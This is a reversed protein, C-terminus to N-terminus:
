LGQCLLKEQGQIEMFVINELTSIPKLGKEERLKQVRTFDVLELVNTKIKDLGILTNLEELLDDLSPVKNDKSNNAKDYVTLSLIIITSLHTFRFLPPYITM